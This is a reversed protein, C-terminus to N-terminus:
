VCFIVTVRCYVILFYLQFFQRRFIFYDQRQRFDEDNESYEPVPQCSYKALLKDGIDNIIYLAQMFLAFLYYICLTFRKSVYFRQHYLVTVLILFLPLTGDASM